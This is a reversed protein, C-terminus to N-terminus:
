PILCNEQWLHHPIEMHVLSMNAFQQHFQGIRGRSLMDPGVNLVGPIHRAQFYINHKLCQLAFIRVLNMLLPERPKLKNIIYVTAMNDCNISLRKNALERHWVFTAVVIPYFELLALNNRPICALWDSLFYSSGLM